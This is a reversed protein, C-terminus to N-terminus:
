SMAQPGASESWGLPIMAPARSFPERSSQSASFSSAPAESARMECVLLCVPAMFVNCNLGKFGCIRAVAPALPSNYMKSTLSMSFGKLSPLTAARDSSISHKAQFRFTDCMRAVPPAPPKTVTHSKFVLFAESVRLLLRLATLAIAQSGFLEVLSRVAVGSSLVGIM